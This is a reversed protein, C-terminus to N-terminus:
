YAKHKYWYGTKNHFYELLNCPAAIIDKWPGYEIRVYEENADAFYDIVKGYQYDNGFEWRVLTGIKM